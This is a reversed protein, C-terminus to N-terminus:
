EHCGPFFYFDKIFSTTYRAAQLVHSEEKKDFTKGKSVVYNVKRLLSSLEEKHSYRQFVWIVAQIFWTGYRTNRLSIFGPHTAFAILIDRMTAIKTESSERKADPQNLSMEKMSDQVDSTDPGSSAAGGLDKGEGQCAQIFFIKPKGALNPCSNTGFYGTIDEVSVVDGDVGYIGAQTGHSLIALIFCDATQHYQDMKEKELAKRIEQGTKDGHVVVDFYLQEFLVKLRDKDMDTGDRTPLACRLVEDEDKTLPGNFVKNNIIVARGRREKKMSYTKMSNNWNERYVESTQSCHIVKIEETMANENPWDLPLEEVTPRTPKLFAAADDNKTDLLIQYFEDFAKRGRRPVLDLIKIIKKIDTTQAEVEQKMAETFIEREYLLENVADPDAINDRLNIRNKRLTERDQTDM